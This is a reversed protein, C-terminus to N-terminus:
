GRKAAELADRLRACEAVAVDREREAEVVRDRLRDADAILRKHLEGGMHHKRCEGLDAM